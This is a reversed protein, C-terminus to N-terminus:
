LLMFTGCGYHTFAGIHLISALQLYDIVQPPISECQQKGTWGGPITRWVAQSPSSHMPITSVEDMIQLLSTRHEPDIDALLQDFSQGRRLTLHGIRWVLGGLIDSLSPPPEEVEPTESPILASCYSPALWKLRSFQPRDKETRVLDETWQSTTPKYRLDVQGQSVIPHWRDGEAVNVTHIDFCGWLNNGFRLSGDATYGAEEMAPLLQTLFFVHDAAQAFLKLEWVIYEGFGYSKKSTHPLIVADLPWYSPPLVHKQGLFHARPGTTVPQALSKKWKKAEQGSLRKVLLSALVFSLEASFNEPLRVVSTNVQWVILYRLIKIPSTSLSM